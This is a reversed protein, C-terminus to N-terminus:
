SRTLNKAPVPLAQPSAEHDITANFQEPTLAAPLTFTVHVKNTAAAADSKYGHCNNLLYMAALINPNKKKTGERYLTRHLNQREVDRGEKFADALEPYEEMWRYLTDQSTGLARAIGVISPITAALAAIRAVANAPPAKSPRGRKTM